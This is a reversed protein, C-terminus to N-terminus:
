KIDEQTYVVHQLGKERCLAILREKKVKTKTVWVLKPFYGYQLHFMKTDRMKAYQEIKAKNVSMKQTVDIEAFYLKDTTFLVDPKVYFKGNLIVEKEIEWHDPCKFYIYLQNRLLTHRIQQSKTYVKDSGIYARGAKNLYYINEELREVNLYKRMNKLVRQANRDSKLDHMEQIQSRSLFGLKDLSLLIQETREKGIEMTSKL